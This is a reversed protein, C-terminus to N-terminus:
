VPFRSFWRKFVKEYKKVHTKFGRIKDMDSMYSNTALYAQTEDEFVKDAYITALINFMERKFNVPLHGTIMKMAKKYEPELYYLAHALEHHYTIDKRMSGIIYFKGNSETHLQFYLESMMYDYKTHDNEPICSNCESIVDSPLNYGIFDKPYTFMSSSTYQVYWSIYDLIRFSQGRFEPNISEYYEQCRLFFMAMEYRSKFVLHYISYGKSTTYVKNVKFLNKPLDM